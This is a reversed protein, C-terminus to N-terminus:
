NRENDDKRLIALYEDAKIAHITFSNNKWFGYVWACVTFLVNIFVDVQTDTINLVPKGVMVMIMNIIAVVNIITSIVTRRTPKM